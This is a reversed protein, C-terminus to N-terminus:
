EGVREKFIIQINERNNIVKADVFGGFKGEIEISNNLPVFDLFRTNVAKGTDSISITVHPVPINNIMKQLHKNSTFLEVKFGENDGNNGYAIIKIKVKEGFLSEDVTDPKYMFTVHPNIIRRELRNGIMKIKNHLEEYNFFIGIYHYKM